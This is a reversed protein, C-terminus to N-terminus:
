LVVRIALLREVCVRHFRSWNDVTATFRARDLALAVMAFAVYGVTGGYFVAYFLLSRLIDVLRTKM